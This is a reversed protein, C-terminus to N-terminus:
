AFGCRRPFVSGVPQAAFFSMTAANGAARGIDRVLSRIYTGGSCEISLMARANEGGQWRSIHLHSITVRRTPIDVEKGQRALDYLKQGGVKIASHM